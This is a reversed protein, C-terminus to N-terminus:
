LGWSTCYLDRKIEFLWLEALRYCIPRPPSAPLSPLFALLRPPLLPPSFCLRFVGGGGRRGPAARRHVPHPASLRGGARGSRGGGGGPRGAREGSLRRHAPANRVWGREGWSAGHRRGSRVPRLPIGAGAAGAPLGRRRQRRSPPLRARQRTRRLAPSPFASAKGLGCVFSAGHPRRPETRRGTGRRRRGHTRSLWLSRAARPSRPAIRAVHGPM